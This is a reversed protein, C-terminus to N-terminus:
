QLSIFIIVTILQIWNLIFCCPLAQHAFVMRRLWGGHFVHPYQSLCDHVTQVPDRYHWYLSLSKEGGVDDWGRDCTQHWRWVCGVAVVMHGMSCRDHGSGFRFDCSHNGANAYRVELSSLPLLRQILPVATIWSGPQPRELVPFRPLVLTLHPLHNGRLSPCPLEDCHCILPSNIRRGGSEMASVRDTTARIVCGEELSVWLCGSGDRLKCIRDTLAIAQAARALVASWSLSLALCPELKGLM